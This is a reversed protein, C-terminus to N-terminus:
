ASEVEAEGVRAELDGLTDRMQERASELVRREVQDQVVALPM